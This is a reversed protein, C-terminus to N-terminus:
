GGAGLALASTLGGGGLPWPLPSGGAGWPGLCLNFGRPPSQEWMRGLNDGSRGCATGLRDGCQGLIHGIEGRVTGPRDGCRGSNPLPNCRFINQMFHTRM